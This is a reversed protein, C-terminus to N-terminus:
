ARGWRYGQDIVLPAMWHQDPRLVIVGAWGGPAPAAAAQVNPLGLREAAAQAQKESPYITTPPTTYPM